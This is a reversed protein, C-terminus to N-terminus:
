VIEKDRQLAESAYAIALGNSKVAILVSSRDCRRNPESQLLTLGDTTEKLAQLVLPKRNAARAKQLHRRARRWFRGPPRPGNHTSRVSDNLLAVDVYIGPTPSSDTFGSEVNQISTDDNDGHNDQQM